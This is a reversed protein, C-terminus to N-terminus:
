EVVHDEKLRAILAQLFQDAYEKDYLTKKFHGTIFDEGNWTSTDIKGQWILKKNKPDILESSFVYSVSTGRSNSNEIGKAPYVILVPLPEGGAAKPTSDLSLPQDIRIYRSDIAAIGNRAFIIPAEKALLEGFLYFGTNGMSAKQSAVTTSEM